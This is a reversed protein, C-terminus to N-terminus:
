QGVEPGIDPLESILEKKILLRSVSDRAQRARLTYVHKKCAVYIDFAALLARDAHAAIKRLREAQLPTKGSTDTDQEIISKIEVIFGIAESPELNQIARVRIMPELAAHAAEPDFTDAALVDFLEAIGKRMAAGVPNAFPDATDRFFRASENPYTRMLANLWKETWRKRHASVIDQRSTKPM